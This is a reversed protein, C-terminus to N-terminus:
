VSWVMDYESISNVCVNWNWWNIYSYMLQIYWNFWGFHMENWILCDIEIAQDKIYIMGQTQNNSKCVNPKQNECWQRVAM